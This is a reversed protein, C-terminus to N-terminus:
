KPDFVRDLSTFITVDDRPVLEYRKNGADYEGGTYLLVEPFSHKYISSLTDIRNNVSRVVRNHIRRLMDSYKKNTHDFAPDNLVLRSFAAHPLVIQAWGDKFSHHNDIIRKVSDNAFVCSVHTEDYVYIAHGNSLLTRYAGAEKDEWEEGTDWDFVYEVHRKYFTKSGLQKRPILWQMDEGYHRERDIRTPIDMPSCQVELVRGNACVVDAVKLAIDNSKRVEVTEGIINPTRLSQWYM